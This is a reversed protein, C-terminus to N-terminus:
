EVQVSAGDTGSTEGAGSVRDLFFTTDYDIYGYVWLSVNYEGLYSTTRIDVVGGHTFAGQFRGPFCFEVTDASRIVLATGNRVHIFKFLGLTAHSLKIYTRTQLRYNPDFALASEQEDPIVRKM